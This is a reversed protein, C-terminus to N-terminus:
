FTQRSFYFSSAIFLPSLHRGRHLRSQSDTDTTAVRLCNFLFIMYFAFRLSVLFSFRRFTSNSLSRLFFSLFFLLVFSLFNVICLFVLVAVSFFLSPFFGMYHSESGDDVTAQLAVTRGLSLQSGIEASKWFPIFLFALRCIAFSLTWHSKAALSYFADTEKDTHTSLLPRASERLQGASPFLHLKSHFISILYLNM